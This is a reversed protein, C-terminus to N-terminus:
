KDLAEILDSDLSDNDTNKIAKGWKNQLFKYLGIVSAVGFPMAMLSLTLDSINNTIDYDWLLGIIAVIFAGMFTGIYYSAIGLLAYGRKNKQHEVALESYRKWIFYLLLLGIM